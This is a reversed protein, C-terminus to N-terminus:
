FLFFSVTASFKRQTMGHKKMNRHVHTHTHTTSLYPTLPSKVTLLAHLSLPFFLVFRIFHRCFLICCMMVISYVITRVDGTPRLCVLMMCISKVAPHPNSFAKLETLDNRDLNDLARAAAEVAPLAELLSEDAKAKQKMM